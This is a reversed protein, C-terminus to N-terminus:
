SDNMSANRIINDVLHMQEQLSNGKRPRILHYFDLKGAIESCKAFYQRSIGMKILITQYYMNNIFCRLKETGTIRDAYVQPTRGKRIEFVAALPVSDAEYNRDNCLLYKRDYSKTVSCAQLDDETIINLHLRQVPPGPHIMLNGSEDLSLVSVEDSLFKHNRKRYAYCLSSKGAGGNGTFVVGKGDIVVCSGHLPIAGRQYLIVALCVTTLYRIILDKNIKNRYEIVVTEGDRIYFKTNKDSLLFENHSLQLRSRKFTPKEIKEPTKGFVIHVDAPQQCPLFGPLEVESSIVLGYARYTNRNGPNINMHRGYFLISLEQM